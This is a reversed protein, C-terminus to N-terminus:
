KSTFLLGGLNTDDDAREGDNKSNKCQLATTRVGTTKHFSLPNLPCDTYYVVYFM